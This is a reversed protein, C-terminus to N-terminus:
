LGTEPKRETAQHGWPDLPRLHGLHETLAACHPRHLQIPLKPRYLVREM